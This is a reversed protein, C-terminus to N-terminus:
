PAEAPRAPDTEREDVLAEVLHPRIRFLLFLCIVAGVLVSVGIAIAVPDSVFLVALALGSLVIQLAYIVLAVARSSLGRHSLRHSSHDVAGVYVPRSESVRTIVVLFTDFIPIGFILLPVLIRIADTKNVLDLKLALSSLLFGLLLSGADGLFIRAPPFNHWLFGLSAGAVALAFAGVLYDGNSAAIVFLTAAAIASFGSALGDMNDLLNIANTVGVVWLITIALDIAVIGTPTARVGAFWLGVAAAVEVVVKTIPGIDHRDDLVGIVFMAAAGFLITVLEGSGSATATFAGVVLVGIAVAVGGLYPTVRSHHREDTPHDLIDLRHALRGAFPTSLLTAVFPVALAAGYLLVQAGGSLTM